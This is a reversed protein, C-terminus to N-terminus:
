RRDPKSEDDKKLARQYERNVRVLANIVVAIRAALVRAIADEWPVSGAAIVPLDEAAALARRTRPDIVGLLELRVRGKLEPRTLAAILSEATREGYLSGAHILTPRDDQPPPERRDLLSSEFGNTLLHLRDAIEPHLALLTERCGETVTVVARVHTLARGELRLLLSSGRDFYPNGAWLDRLEVILPTGKVASASENFQAIRAGSTVGSSSSNSRKTLSTARSIVVLAPCFHVAIRRAMTGRWCRSPTVAERILRRGTLAWANNPAFADPRVRLGLALPELLRGALAMVQARRAALQASHADTSSEDGTIGVPPSCEAVRWGRRPLAHRLHRWRVSGGGGLDLPRQSVVLLTRDAM